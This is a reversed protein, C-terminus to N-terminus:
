RRSTPVPHIPSQLREDETSARKQESTRAPHFQGGWPPRRLDLPSTDNDPMTSLQLQNPNAKQRAAPQQRQAPPNM